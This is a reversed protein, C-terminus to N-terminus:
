RRARKRRFIAAAGLGFAAFTSPEPVPPPIVFRGLFLPNTPDPNVNDGGTYTGGFALVAYDISAPLAPYSVTFGSLSTGPVFAYGNRGLSPELFYPYTQNPDGYPSLDLTPEKLWGTPASQLTGTGVAFAYIDNTGGLDNVLTFDFVYQGASQTMTYTVLPAAHVPCAAGALALLSVTRIPVKM